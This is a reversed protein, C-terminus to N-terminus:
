RLVLDDLVIGADSESQPADVRLNLGATSSPALNTVDWLVNWTSSSLQKPAIFIELAVGLFSGSSNVWRLRVLVPGNALHSIGRVHAVFQLRTGRSAPVTQAIFANMGAVMAARTGSHVLDGVEASIVTVAATNWGALDKEFGANQIRNRPSRPLRKRKQTGQMSYHSREQKESWEYTRRHSQHGSSERTFRFVPNVAAIGFFHLLTRSIASSCQTIGFRYAHPQGGVHGCLVVDSEPSHYLLM